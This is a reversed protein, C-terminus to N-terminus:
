VKNREKCTKEQIYGYLTEDKKATPTDRSNGLKKKLKWLKLQCFKGDNNIEEPHSMIKRKNEEATSEILFEECKDLREKAILKGIKCNTSKIFKNLDKKMNMADNIEKNGEFRYSKSLRIKNFCKKVTNM